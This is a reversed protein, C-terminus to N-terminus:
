ASQEEAGVTVANNFVMANPVFIRQGDAQLTTYRLNIEIVKGKFSSIAIYDDLQFPKYIILLIGALVNSIIDKLAFGLAFGTLGVGAVIATVDLGLTGLATVAGFALLGVKAVRALLFTLSVDISRADGLRRIVKAALIGGLWFLVFAGLSAGLRPMFSVLSTCVQDWTVFAFM